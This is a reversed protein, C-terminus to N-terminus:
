GQSRKKNIQEQFRWGISRQGAALSGCIV